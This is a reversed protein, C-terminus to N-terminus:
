GAKRKVNIRTGTTTNEVPGDLAYGFGDPYFCQPSGTDSRSGNWCCGRKECTEKTETKGGEPICNFHKTERDSYALSTSNTSDSSNSPLVIWLTVASIVLVIIAFGSLGICLCQRKRVRLRRADDTFVVNEEGNIDQYDARKGFRPMALTHRIRVVLVTALATPTTEACSDVGPAGKSGSWLRLRM